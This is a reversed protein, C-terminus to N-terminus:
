NQWALCQLKFDSGEVALAAAYGDAPTLHQLSWRQADRVRTGETLGLGSAKLQAETGTWKTYFHVAKEHPPLLRLQWADEPEFYHDALTEFPVDERMLEVDVGVERAHSVALLLLDDSHSLNFRLTSASRELTPKGHVGPVFSLEAPSQALYRGLITRLVGRASVFRERDRAFHFRGARVWETSSLTQQLEPSSKGLHARWVHVEGSRLAPHTAAPEWHPSLLATM